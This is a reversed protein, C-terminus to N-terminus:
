GRKLIKKIPKLVLGREYNNMGLFWMSVCYVVTYGAISLLMFWINYIDVFLNILIGCGIPIILGLSMRLINKWFNLIDIYCKKHYYINMILGNAIVFSIATGVAAGVVGYKRCLFISLVLNGLAMIIYVISRFQHKNLARQIEIGLNQVLAITAPLVLLLTVYYADGYGDGAWFHIFPRGFFVIGSGVLGLILFQIRGVKNFLSSIKLRKEASDSSESVIKHVRPTLFGAVSSSIIMYYNYLTYGVSYVAVSVTGKYRGLLFKDVNLNIQNVILEIAIFSTYVFMSKFLGREFGHFIFKQKLKFIVFFFYLIDIVLSVGVTVSVMAISRFGALLLPLTILPGGLTRVISLLKLFVFREHASIINQFVSMPFSIALNVTLLLMLVKAIEYEETTLGKDFVFGLNNSIVLGCALAVIGIITFIILFLGNLKYIKDNNEEKKYKSYYRIYGANFGLSLISLMSIVSSVTNYLGYESKGLYRIMFPTYLLGLIVNLAMNLYSIIAGAKIQNIRKTM